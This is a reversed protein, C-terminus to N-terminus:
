GYRVGGLCNNLTSAAKEMAGDDETLVYVEINDYRKRLYYEADPYFGISVIFPKISNVPIVKDPKRKGVNVGGINYTYTLSGDDNTQVSHIVKEYYRALELAVFDWNNHSACPHTFTLVYANGQRSVRVYNFLKKLEQSHKIAKFITEKILNEVKKM